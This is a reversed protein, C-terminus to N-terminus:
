CAGHSAPHLSGRADGRISRVGDNLFSERSRLGLEIGQTCSELPEMVELGEHEVVVGKLGSVQKLIASAWDTIYGHSDVAGPKAKRVNSIAEPSDQARLHLVWQVHPPM